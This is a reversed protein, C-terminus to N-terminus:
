VKISIKEGDVHTHWGEHRSDESELGLLNEGDTRPKMDTTPLDKM